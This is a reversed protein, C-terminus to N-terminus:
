QRKAATLRDIQAQMQVLTAQLAGVDAVNQTTQIINGVPDAPDQLGLIRLAHSYVGHARKAPVNFAKAREVNEIHERAKSELYDRWMRTGKERADKDNAAVNDEPHPEKVRPDVIVIGYDKFERKVREAFRVAVSVPGNLTDVVQETPIDFFSEQLAEFKWYSVLNQVRPDNTPHDFQFTHEVKSGPNYARITSM